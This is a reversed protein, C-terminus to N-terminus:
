PQLEAVPQAAKHRKTAARTSAHAELAFADDSVCRLSFSAEM